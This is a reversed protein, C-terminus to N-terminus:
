HRHFVEVALNDLSQLYDLLAYAYINDTTSVLVIEDGHEDAITVHYM